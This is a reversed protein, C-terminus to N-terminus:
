PTPSPDLPQANRVINRLKMTHRYYLALAIIPGLACLLIGVTALIPILITDRRLSRLFKRDPTRRAIRRMVLLSTVTAAVVIFYAPDFGYFVTINANANGFQYTFQRATATQSPSAIGPVAQQTMLDIATSILVAIVCVITTIMHATAASQEEQIGPERASLKMWGTILLIISVLLAIVAIAAAFWLLGHTPPGARALALLIAGLLLALITTAFLLIAKRICSVATELKKLYDPHARLRPTKELTREIPIGCEPCVGTTDLGALDYDCNICTLNVANRSHTSQRRGYM